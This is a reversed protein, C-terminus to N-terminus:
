APQFTLVVYSGLILIVFVVIYLVSKVLVRWSPHHIYDDLV